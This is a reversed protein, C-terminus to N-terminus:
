LSNKAKKRKSSKTEKEDCDLAENLHEILEDSHSIMAHKTKHHIDVIHYHLAEEVGILSQNYFNLSIVYSQMATIYDKRAQQLAVYDLSGTKYLQEVVNLNEVAQTATKQAYPVDQEAFELNNFAEQVKYYLDKKFLAIENDALKLQADAGKISHKLEM